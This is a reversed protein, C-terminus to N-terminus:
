DYPALLYILGLISGLDKIEKINRHLAKTNVPAFSTFTLEILQGALSRFHNSLHVLGIINAANVLRLHHAKKIHM